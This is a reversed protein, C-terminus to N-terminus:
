QYGDWMEQSYECKNEIGYIADLINRPFCGNMGRFATNTMVIILWMRPLNGFLLAWALARFGM